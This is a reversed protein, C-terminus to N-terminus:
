LGRGDMFPAGISRLWELAEDADRAITVPFGMRDLRDIWESQNESVKGTASKFEIYAAVPVANVKDSGHSFLCMVDPFGASMGERKAQRAAGTGRKGANPIAVIHVAPCLIRARSRFLTQIQLETRTRHHVM